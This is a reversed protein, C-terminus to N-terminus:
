LIRRCLLVHSLIDFVYEPTVQQKTDQQIMQKMQAKQEETLKALMSDPMGISKMQVLLEEDTIEM